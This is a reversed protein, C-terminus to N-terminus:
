LSLTSVSLCAHSLRQSLCIVVPLILWIVRENPVGPPAGRRRLPRPGPHGVGRLPYFTSIVAPACSAGPRRPAGPTGPTVRAVMWNGGSLGEAGTRECTNWGPRGPPRLSAAAYPGRTPPGSGTSLAPPRRIGRPPEGRSDPKLRPWRGDTWLSWRHRPGLPGRAEPAVRSAGRRAPSGPCCRRLLAAGLGVVSRPAGPRCVVEWRPSTGPTCCCL